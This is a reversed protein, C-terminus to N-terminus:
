YSANRICQRAVEFCEEKTLDGREDMAEEVAELIIGVIEGKLNFENIIDNGNIPLKRKALKEEDALMSEYRDLIHQVLHIKKKVTVTTNEAQIVDLASIFDDGVKNIFKRVLKASPTVGDQISDFFDLSNIVTVVREIFKSEYRLEKLTLEAFQASVKCIRENRFKNVTTVLQGYDHFLAAFRAIIDSKNTKDLVTMTHEFLTMKPTRVDNIQTMGEIEGMSHGLLGSFYMKYFFTSPTSMTLVKALLRAFDTVSASNLLHANEIMSFWTKKEIEWGLETATAAVSVMHLPNSLYIIYPTGSTRIRKQYLDMLGNESPDIVKDTSINYYIANISLGRLTADQKLTGYIASEDAITSGFKGKRTQSCEITYEEFGKIKCTLIDYTDIKFKHVSLYGNSQLYDGLKRAGKELEIALIIKTPEVNQIMNRLTVDTIYVHNEYKSNSIISKLHEILDNIKKNNLKIISNM